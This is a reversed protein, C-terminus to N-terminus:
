ANHTGQELRQALAGEDFFFNCFFLSGLKAPYRLKRQFVEIVLAAFM